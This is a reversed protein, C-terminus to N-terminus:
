RDRNECAIFNFILLFNVNIFFCLYVKWVPGLGRYRPFQFFELGMQFPFNCLKWIVNRVPRFVIANRSAVNRASATASMQLAAAGRDGAVKRGFNERGVVCVSEASLNALAASEQSLM